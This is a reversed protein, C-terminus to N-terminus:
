CCGGCVGAGGPLGGKILLEAGCFTCDGPTWAPGGSVGAGAGGSGGGKGLLGNSACNM